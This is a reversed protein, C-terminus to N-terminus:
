VSVLLCLVIQEKLSSSMLDENCAASSLLVFLLDVDIAGCRGM